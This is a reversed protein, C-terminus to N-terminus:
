RRFYGPQGPDLSAAPKGADVRPPWNNRISSSRCSDNKVEASTRMPWVPYGSLNPSSTTKPLNGFNPFTRIRFWDNPRRFNKVLSRLRLRRCGLARRMSSRKSLRRVQRPYEKAFALLEENSPPRVSLIFWAIARDASNSTRIVPKDADVPYERVQQLQSNVKLVAQNMDTGVGFELTITGQSDQSESSMKPSAKSAKSNSKRSTSLRKKSKRPVPGKGALRCRLDPPSGCETGTADAHPVDRDIWVADASHHWRQGQRSKRYVLFHSARRTEAPIPSITQRSRSM